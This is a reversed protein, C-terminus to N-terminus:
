NKVLKKMKSPDKGMKRFIEDLENKANKKKLELDKLRISERVKKVNDEFDRKLIIDIVIQKLEEVSTNKYQDVVDSQVKSFDTLVGDEYGLLYRINAAQMQLSVVSTGIVFEALEKEDKVPLGKIGFKVFFYTVITDEKSWKHIRNM